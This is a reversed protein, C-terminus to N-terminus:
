ANVEELAWARKVINAHKSTTKSHTYAQSNIFRRSSDEFSAIEVGYSRVIYVALGGGIEEWNATLTGANFAAREALLAKAESMTKIYSSM